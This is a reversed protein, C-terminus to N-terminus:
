VCFEQCERIKQLDGRWTRKRRKAFQEYVKVLDTFTFVPPAAPEVGAVKKEVRVEQAPDRSEIDIAHRKELALMRATALGTAPYGGLTLWQPKGGSRYVFVWTKAGSPTVRLGLGRAKSDFFVTRSASHTGAVFRDTLNLTPM